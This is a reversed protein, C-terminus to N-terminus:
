LVALERWTVPFLKQIPDSGIMRMGGNFASSMSPVQYISPVNTGMDFFQGVVSGIIITQKDISVTDQSYFAGMIEIHSSLGLSMTNEAMVGIMNDPFVTAMLNLSIEVNGTGGGDGNFALMTGQGEYNITRNPAGNGALFNIDGDVAVRGNIVMTKTTDDYWVYYEDSSLDSQLPMAGDGPDVAVIETGTTANWYYSGSGTQITMDGTYVQQFGVSPDPDTELYYSLHDREVDNSYTPFTVMDGLDYVNDWGNDSYVNKPSGDPNIADGTWGDTVYVGDMTEKFSNGALHEEGVESNGSMGVLGNKVRLTANLTEIGMDGNFDTTPLGPIRSRTDASLGEYNNHILSSGSLDMAALAVGGAGLGDGLLHVSGHISVNGNILMGAQGAGAFISNQWVNVNAEQLVREARRIATPTNNWMVRSAAFATVYGGEAEPGVDIQGDGNNDIGDTAWDFSYAFYQVQPSTPISVPNVLPDGFNPLGLTFDYDPDVGVFGGGGANFDAQAQAFASELGEFCNQYDVYKDVHRANNMVRSSAYTATLGMVVLFIMAVILAMGEDRKTRNLNM